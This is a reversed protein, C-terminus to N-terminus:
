KRRMLEVLQDLAAGWGAHFGMQEHSVRDAPLAHRAMATYRTGKGADALSIVGTFHFSPPGDSSEPARPVPRYGSELASTFILREGPVVDLYCGVNPFLQGEPSRMVTRCLGGPRLDIEVEATSWPAPTFWQKLHEAKTWAEWVLQRPVDIVRELVLDLAPDPRFLDHTKM